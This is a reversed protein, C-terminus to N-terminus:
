ASGMAKPIDENNKLREVTEELAKIMDERMGNSVYNSMGPANFNFTILAFGVTREGEPPNLAVDLAKALASM